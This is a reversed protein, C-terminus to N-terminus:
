RTPGGPRTQGTEALAHLLSSATTLSNFEKARRKAQLDVRPSQRRSLFAVLREELDTLDAAVYWGADGCVWPLAGADPVICPTGCEMAELAPLGFGEQESLTVFALCSHYSSHLEGDSAFPIWSLWGERTGETVLRTVQEGYEPFSATPRGVMTLRVAYGRQRLSRMAHVLEVQRKRPEWKSVHLFENRRRPPIKEPTCRCRLEEAVHLPVVSIKGAAQPLHKLLDERSYPSVTVIRWAAEAVLEYLRRIIGTPLNVGTPVDLMAALDLLEGRGFRERFANLRPHFFDARMPFADHLVRVQRCRILPSSYYQTAIFIEVGLQEVLDPFGQYDNTSLVPADYPVVQVHEYRRPLDQPRGFLVLRVDPEHRVLADVLIQAFRGVGDYRFRRCDVGIRM